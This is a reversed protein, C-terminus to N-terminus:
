APTSGADREMLEALHYEIRLLKEQTQRHLRQFHAVVLCVAAVVVITVGGLLLKTRLEPDTVDWAMNILAFGWGGCFLFAIFLGMFDGLRRRYGGQIAIRLLWAGMVLGTIACTAAITFRAQDLGTYEPHERASAMSVGGGVLAAAFCIASAGMLWREARSIRHVLLKELEERYRKARVANFGELGLLKEGFSVDGAANQHESM